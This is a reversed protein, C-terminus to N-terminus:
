RPLVLSTHSSQDPRRSPGSAAEYSTTLSRLGRTPSKRGLAIHAGSSCRWNATRLRAHIEYAIAPPTIRDWRGTTVLTRAAVQALGAEYGALTGSVNWEPDDGVFGQYAEINFREEPDRWLHPHNWPDAWELEEILPALLAQYGDALSRIGHRRLEIVKVGPKRFQSALQLNVNDINGAKWGAAGVQANCLILRDVERPHDIAYAVAPIGGFSLGILGVRSMKLNLRVVDIAEVYREVTYDPPAASRGTGPHDYYVVRRGAALRSFWPHYHGHGVGPGGGVLIIVDKGEGEVECWIRGWPSSVHQGPPHM